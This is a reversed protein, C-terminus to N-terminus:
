EDKKSSFANAANYTGMGTLIITSLEPTLIGFGALVASGVMGVLTVIFKRSGYKV